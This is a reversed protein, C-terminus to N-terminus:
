YVYRSKTANYNKETESQTVTSSNSVDLHLILNSEIIKKKFYIGQYSPLIQSFSETFTLIVLFLILNSKIM